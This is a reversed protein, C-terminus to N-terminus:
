GRSVGPVAFLRCLYSPSLIAHPPLVGATVGILRQALGPDAEFRRFVAELAWPRGLVAQIIRSVILRPAFEELRRAQYEQLAASEATSKRRASSNNETDETDPVRGSCYRTPPHNLILDVAEAALEAGRLAYSIGEGTFPDHFGAADGVLLVGPLGAAAARSSMSGTVMVRGIRRGWALRRAVAPFRALREEYFAETRGQLQPLDAPEAVM